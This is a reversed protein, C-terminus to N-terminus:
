LGLQRWLEERTATATDTHGRRAKENQGGERRKAKARTSTWVGSWGVGDGGVM